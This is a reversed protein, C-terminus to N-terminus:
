AEGRAKLEAEVESDLYDDIAKNAVLKVFADFTKLGIFEVIGDGFGAQRTMKIIEDQTM